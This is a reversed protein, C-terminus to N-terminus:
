DRRRPSILRARTAQPLAPKLPRRVTDSSAVRCPRRGAPQQAAEPLRRTAEPMARRCPRQQRQQDGADNQLNRDLVPQVEPIAVEEVRELGAIASLDPLWACIRIARAAALTESATIATQPRM